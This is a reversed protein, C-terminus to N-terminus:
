WAPSPFNSASEPYSFRFHRWLVTIVARGGINSCSEHHHSDGERQFKRLWFVIADTTANALSLSFNGPNKTMIPIAQGVSSGFIHCGCRTGRLHHSSWGQHGDHEICHRFGCGHNFHFFLCIERTKDANAGFKTNQTNMRSKESASM